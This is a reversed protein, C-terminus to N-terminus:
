RDIGGAVKACVGELVERHPGAPLRSHASLAEAANRRREASGNAPAGSPADGDAADDALQFAIGFSRGVAALTDVTAAPAGQVLAASRCCASMLDATKYDIIRQYEAPSATRGTNRLRAAFIEAISSHWFLM